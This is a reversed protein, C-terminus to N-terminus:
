LCEERKKKDSKIGTSEMAKSEAKKEKLKEQFSMNRKEEREPEKDARSFVREKADYVYVHDSLVEEMDVQTDNVDKVMAQLEEVTHEEDKKILILEHLSSPLVYYDGGMQETLMEKVGPYLFATAGYMRQENTVIHMGADHNLEPMMDNIMADAEVDDMGKELMQNKMIDKLLVGMSIVELPFLKEMNSVALEHLEEVSIGFKEFIQNNILVTGSESDELSVCIHYTVALDELTTHPVDPLMHENYEQNVLRCIIHDKAKSFDTVLSTDFEYNKDYFTRIRAIDKLIDDMSKLNGGWEAFYKDLYITPSINEEPKVINLGYLLTGNNKKVPAVKVEADKFESPLYDLIQNKIKEGFVAYVDFTM